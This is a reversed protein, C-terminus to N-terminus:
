EHYSAGLFRDLSIYNMREAIFESSALWNKKPTEMNALVHGLAMELDDYASLSAMARRVGERVRWVGLPALWSKTVEMFVLCKAQRRLNLLGQAVALRAAYYAGGLNSAYSSRGKGSERDGPIMYEGVTNGTFPLWSELMEFSWSSPLLVVAFRNGLAEHYGARFADIVSLEKIRTIVAKSLTDDVVTIGWRTPVLTRRRGLLGGTLLNTIQVENVGADWLEVMGMSAAVGRDDVIQQVKRPVSPNEIYLVRELTGSPGMPPTHFSFSFRPMVARELTLEIDMPKSSMAVQALEGLVRDDNQKINARKMSRVLSLRISILQAFDLDLWGAPNEGVGPREGGSSVLPGAFVMPYGAEGAFFSPPSPGYLHRGQPVSVEYTKRAEFILPCISQGCLHRTGKCVACLGPNRRVAEPIM